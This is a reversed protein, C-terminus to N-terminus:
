TELMGVITEWHKKISKDYDLKRATKMIESLTTKQDKVARVIASVAIRIGIKSSYKFAEAITRNIDCIKFDKHHEVGYKSIINSRILRYKNDNTRMNKPVIVWVQQPAQDILNHYFLATLGSIISDKGFKFAASIFDIHEAPLNAKLNLYIGHSLKLFEGNLVKKSIARRTLGFNLAEKLKFVKLSDSSIIKENDM